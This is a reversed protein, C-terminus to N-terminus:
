EICFYYDCGGSSSVYIQNNNLLLIPDGLFFHPDASTVSHNYLIYTFTSGYGIAVNVTINGGSTNVISFFTIHSPIDYFDSIASTATSGKFVPM